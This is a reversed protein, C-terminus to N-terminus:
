ESSKKLLVDFGSVRLEENSFNKFQNSMLNRPLPIKEWKDVNLIDACFGADKFYQVMESYRIRNTYFGSSSFFKSEWVKESFRLNNLSSDLHDKLDVRHSARGEPKLVRYCEKMTDMFEYKRVHELVAQSFILDVSEDDLCQLSVIGDTLYIAGCIELIDKLTSASSLDPVHTVDLNKLEAVLRKYGSVDQKAYAGADVLIANAGYCKALIATAISDGPGLELIKKGILAEDYGSRAIHQNFVNLVYDASDMYGHRFLGIKQWVGYGFPLRSLGIKGIIKVWWPLYKKM